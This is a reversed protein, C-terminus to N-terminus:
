YMQGTNKRVETVTYYNGSYNTMYATKGEILSNNDNIYLKNNASKGKNPDSTGVEYFLYYYQQRIKDYGKGTVVIYHNTIGPTNSSCKDEWGIILGYKDKMPTPHHVGVMIPLKHEKLSKDIIGVAEKFEAVKGTLGDCDSNSSEAIILQSSRDTSAGSYELIKHSAKYCCEESWCSESGFLTADFQHTGTIDELITEENTQKETYLYRMLIPLEARKVVIVIRELGTSIPRKEDYHDTFVLKAYTGDICEPCPKILQESTNIFVYEDTAPSATNSILRIQSLIEEGIKLDSTVCGEPCSIYKDYIKTSDSYNITRINNLFELINQEAMPGTVMEGEEEDQWAKFWLNKPDSILRWQ